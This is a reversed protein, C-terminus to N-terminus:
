AARQTTTTHDWVDTVEWQTLVSASSPLSRLMRTGTMISLLTRRGRAKRSKCVARRSSQDSGVDWGSNVLSTCARVARRPGGGWCATGSGAETAGTHGGGGALARGM